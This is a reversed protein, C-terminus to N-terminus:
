LIHKHGTVQKFITAWPLSLYPLQFTNLFMCICLKTQDQSLIQQGYCFLLIDVAKYKLYLIDSDTIVMSTVRARPCPGRRRPDDREEVPCATCSQQQTSEFLSNQREEDDEREGDSDTAM